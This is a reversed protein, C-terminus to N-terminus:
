KLGIEKKIKEAQPIIVKDFFGVPMDCNMNCFEEKTQVGCNAAWMAAMTSIFDKGYKKSAIKFNVKFNKDDSEFDTIEFIRNM